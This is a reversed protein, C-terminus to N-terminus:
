IKYQFCPSCLSPLYLRSSYQQIKRISHEQFHSSVATVLVVLDQQSKATQSIFFAFLQSYSLKLFNWICWTWFIYLEQLLWVCVSQCQGWVHTKQNAPWFMHQLCQQLTHESQFLFPFFFSCVSLGHQQM